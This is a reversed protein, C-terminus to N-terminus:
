AVRAREEHQAEDADRRRRRGWSEAALLLLVALWVWRRDDRDVTDARPPPAPGPERTWARLQRDPIPLVEAARVDDQPTLALGVARVLAALFLDPVDARAAIELTGNRSAFQWARQPDVAAAEARLGPDAAIRAIADTMWATAVPAGSSPPQDDGRLVVRVRRDARPIPLRMALAAELAARARGQQEPPAVIDIPISPRGGANEERVTTKGEDLTVTRRVEATPTAITAAALTRSRPTEGTREFRLGVSPPVARVAREDVTGITLPATVVIERRAPPANDLWGVARRLGERLDDSQFQRCDPAACSKLTAASAPSFDQAVVARVLRADWAARRWANTVLPGAFAAAAAAVIAVRVLLLPMDDLARRRIAAIRTPPIFRLTPFPLREGRRHALLHVAIPVAAAALAFLALPNLWIM